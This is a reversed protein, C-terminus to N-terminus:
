GRPPERGTLLPLLEPCVSGGVLGGFMGEASAQNEFWNYWHPGERYLTFVAGVPWYLGGWRRAQGTHGCEHALVESASPWPVAGAATRRALDRLRGGPPAVPYERSAPGEAQERVLEEAFDWGVAM